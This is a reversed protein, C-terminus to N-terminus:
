DATPHLATEIYERLDYFRRPFNQSGTATVVEKGDATLTFRFMTGDLLGRPHRGSFGDWRLVGCRNFVALVEALPREARDGTERCVFLAVDGERTIEYTRVARMGSLCLVATDFSTLKRCFLM